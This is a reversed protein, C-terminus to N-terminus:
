IEIEVYKKCEETNRYEESLAEILNGNYEYLKSNVWSNRLFSVNEKMLIMEYEDQNWVM